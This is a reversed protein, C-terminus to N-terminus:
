FISMQKTKRRLEDKVVPSSGTGKRNNRSFSFYKLNVSVKQGSSHVCVRVGSTM